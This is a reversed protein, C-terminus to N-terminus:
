PVRKFKWSDGRQNTLTLVDVENIEYTFDITRGGNLFHQVRGDYYECKLVLKLPEGGAEFPACEQIYQGSRTYECIYKNNDYNTDPINTWFPKWKGLISRNHEFLELTM